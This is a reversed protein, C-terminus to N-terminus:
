QIAIFIPATEEEVIKTLINEQRRMSAMKGTKLWRCNYQCLREFLQIANEKVSKSIKLEFNLKTPMLLKPFQCQM